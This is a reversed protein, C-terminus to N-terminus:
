TGTPALPVGDNFYNELRGNLGAAGGALSVSDVRKIMIKVPLRQLLPGRPRKKGFMSRELGDIKVLLVPKEPHREILNHVGSLRSEIAVRSGDGIRGECFLLLHHGAALVKDMISHTESTRRRREETWLLIRDPAGRKWHSPPERPSGLCIVGFLKMIWWQKWDTYEAHWATARIRAHPWANSMLFPGDLFSVHNAVVISGNTCTLAEEAGVIEVKYNLAFLPQVIFNRLTSRAISGLTRDVTKIIPKSTM